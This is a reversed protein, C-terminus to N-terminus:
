NTTPVSADVVELTVGDVWAEGAGDVLMGFFLSAATPAVDLVIDYPRWDSTGTIPRADMNDIVLSVGATDDVRMWLGAHEVGAARVFARMRVRKGRYDDAAVSQMLTGFGAPRAARAAVHGSSRGCRTVNPDSGILYDQPATGAVLWAAPDLEYPQGPEVVELVDDGAWIEGEGHLELGYAISAAGPDVDLEIQRRSWNVDGSIPRDHMDDFALTSSGAGDVRVWLAGWGLVNAAKVVAMFRLRKSRYPAAEVQTMLTGFQTNTPAPALKSRLHANPRGNFSLNPDVDIVYGQPDNGGITWFHPDPGFRAVPRDSCAPGAEPAPPADPSADVRAADVPSADVPPCAAGSVVCRALAECCTYGTACPCPRDELPEIHGCALGVAVGAIATLAARNVIALVM